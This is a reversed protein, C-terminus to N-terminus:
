VGNTSERLIETQGYKKGKTNIFWKIKTKDWISNKKLTFQLNSEIGKIM